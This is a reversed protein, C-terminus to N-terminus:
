LTKRLEAIRIPVELTFVKLLDEPELERAEDESPLKELEEIIKTDIYSQILQEVYAILAHKDKNQNSSPKSAWYALKDIQEQQEFTLELRDSM